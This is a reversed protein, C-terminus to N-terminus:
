RQDLGIAASIAGDFSAGGFGFPSYGLVEQAFQTLVFPMGFASMGLAVLVLNGGVLTRSRLVRLPM